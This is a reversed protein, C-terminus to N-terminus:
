EITADIATPDIGEDDSVTAAVAATNDQKAAQSKAAAKKAKKAAKEAKREAMKQKGWSIGKKVAPLVWHDVAGGIVAGGLVLAGDRLLTKGLGSKAPASSVPITVEDLAKQAAAAVDVNGAAEQLTDCVQEATAEAVQEVVNTMEEM